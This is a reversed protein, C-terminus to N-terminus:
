VCFLCCLKNWTREYYGHQLKCDSCTSRFRADPRGYKRDAGYSDTRSRATRDTVPTPASATLQSVSYRSGGANSGTGCRTNACTRPHPNRLSDAGNSRTFIYEATQVIPIRDKTKNSM